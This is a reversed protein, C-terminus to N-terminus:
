QKTLQKHPLTKFFSLVNQPSIKDKETNIVTTLVLFKDMEPNTLHEGNNVLNTIYVKHSENPRIINANPKVLYYKSTTKIKFAINNNPNKNQLTLICKSSKKRSPFELQKNPTM